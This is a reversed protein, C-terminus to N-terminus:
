VTVMVWAAGAILSALWYYAEGTETKDISLFFIPKGLRTAWRRRLNM